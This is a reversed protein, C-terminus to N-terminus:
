FATPLDTQRHDTSFYPLNVTSTSIGYATLFTNAPTDFPTQSSYPLNFISISIGYPETVALSRHDSTRCIFISVSIGYPATSKGYVQYFRCPHLSQHYQVRKPANTALSITVSRTGLNLVIARAIFKINIGFFSSATTVSYFMMLLMTTAHVVGDPVIRLMVFSWSAKKSIVDLM